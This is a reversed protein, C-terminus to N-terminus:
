KKTILNKAMSLKLFHKEEERIIDEVIHRQSQKVIDKIGTYLVVSDHERDMAFEIAHLMNGMKKDAATRNFKEKKFVIKEEIYQMLHDMYHSSFESLAHEGKLQSMMQTFKKKHQTEEKALTKMVLKVGSDSAVSAAYQYFKRGNEEIKIAVKFVDKINVTSM